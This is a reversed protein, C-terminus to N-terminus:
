SATEISEADKVKAGTGAQIGTEPKPKPDFTAAGLDGRVVRNYRKLAVGADPHDLLRMVLKRSYKGRRVLERTACTAHVNRIDHLTSHPLELDKLEELIKKALYM